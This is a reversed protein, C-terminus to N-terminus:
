QIRLPHGETNFVWENLDLTEDDSFILYLYKLTEALWYTEMVDVTNDRFWSRSMVNKLGVYGAERKCQAEIATFVEWAWERYKEEKTARWLYFYTEVAEPRLSYKPDTWSHSKLDNFQFKDGSLGTASSKYMFHCTAAVNKGFDLQTDKRGDQMYSLAFLGGSFCALHEMVNGSIKGDVITYGSVVSAKSIAHASVKDWMRKFLKEKKGSLLWVKLLYEYFSDGFAGLGAPPGNSKKLTIQGTCYGGKCLEPEIFEIAKRAAEWYKPDDTEQSLSYFEMQHTGFESLVASNRSWKNPEHAGTKLNILNDPVPENVANQYCLLLIDGLQRARELLFPRQTRQYASLLGAVGRITLEFASVSVSDRHFDLKTQIYLMAEEAEEHMGTILLTDLADLVTLGIGVSGHGWNRFSKQEPLLEDHGMGAYKVYGDWSHKLAARVADRRQLTLREAPTEVRLSPRDYPVTYVEAETPKLDKKHSRSDVYAQDQVNGPQKSEQEKIMKKAEIPIVWNTFIWTMAVVVGFISRKMGKYPSRSALVRSDAGSQSSVITPSSLRCHNYSSTQAHNHTISIAQDPVPRLPTTLQSRISAADQPTLSRAPQAFVHGKTLAKSSHIPVGCKTLAENRREFTTSDNHQLIYPPRLGSLKM